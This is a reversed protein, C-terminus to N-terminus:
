QMKVVKLRQRKTKNEIMVFYVGSVWNTTEFAMTEGAGIFSKQITTITKGAVDTVTITADLWDEEGFVLNFNYETPNPYLAIPAVNAVARGTGVGGIPTCGTGSLYQPIKTATATCANAGTVTVTYTAPLTTSPAITISATTAQTNWLYTGGGSALLATTLGTCPINPQTITVVPRAKLVVTATKTTTCGNAANTATVTYIGGIQVTLTPSIAASNWMFTANVNSAAATLTTSSGACFELRGGIAIIPTVVNQTVAISASVTCGNTPNSITVTYTGPAIVTISATTSTNSWIYNATFGNASATLATSIRTCTLNGASTIASTIQTLNSTVVVSKTATCGTPSSVTVTYTGAATVTRTNTTIGGGWVFTSGAVNSTATITAVPSTCTL